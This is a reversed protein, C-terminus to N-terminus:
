ARRFRSALATAGAAAVILMLPHTPLAYRGRIAFNMYFLSQYALVALVLGFRDRARLAVGLGILFFPMVLTMLAMNVRGQEPNYRRIFPSGWWYYLLREACRRATLGPHARAYALGQHLLMRDFDAENMTELAHKDIVQWRKEDFACLINNHPLSFQNQGGLYNFGINTAVPVFRHLRIANRITWPLIVLGAVTGAVVMTGAIKRWPVRLARLGAPVVLFSGLFAPLMTGLVGYALGARAADRRGGGAAEQLLLVIWPALLAEFTVSYAAASYIVLPPWLIVAWAALTASRPDILAGLRRTVVATAASPVTQLFMMAVVWGAGFVVKLAALFLPYFPPFFALRPVTSGYFEWVFGRGALVNDALTGLELGTVTVHHRSYVATMTVRVLLAILFIGRDSRPDLWRRIM